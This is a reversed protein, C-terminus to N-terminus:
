GIGLNHGRDPAADQKLQQSLGDTAALQVRDGGIADSPLDVANGVILKRDDTRLIFDSGAKGYLAGSYQQGPVTSAIYTQAVKEKGWVENLHDIATRLARVRDPDAGEAVFREMMAHQGKSQAISAQIIREETGISLDVPHGAKQAVQELFVRQTRGNGEPFAHVQNM